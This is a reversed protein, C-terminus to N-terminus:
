IPRELTIGSRVNVESFSRVQMSGKAAQECTAAFELLMEAVCESESDSNRSISSNSENSLSTNPSPKSATLRAADSFLSLQQQNSFTSLLVGGELV